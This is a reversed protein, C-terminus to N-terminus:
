APAARDRRALDDVLLGRIFVLSIPTANAAPSAIPLMARAPWCLGVGEEGEADVPVVGLMAGEVLLRHHELIEAVVAHAMDPQVAHGVPQLREVLGAQLQKLDRHHHVDGRALRSVIRPELVHQRQHFPAVDLEVQQDAARLRRVSRGVGAPHLNQALHRVQGPVGARLQQEVRM